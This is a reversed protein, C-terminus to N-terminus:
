FVFRAGFQGTRPTTSTSYGTLVLFTSPAAQNGSPNAFNVRDTVNFIEGFVELKRGSFPITYGIRLDLKFFGPGYAGNRESKYNDVTYADPGTGSYSGAALPESQSGNMDPDINGNTLSFPSGSLARAVWSVTLGGTKPVIAAGSVVLNHRLDTNTPGENLELHLDDGFQFGSRRSARAAPTAARTPM